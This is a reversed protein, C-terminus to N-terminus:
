LRKRYEDVIERERSHIDMSLVEAVSNAQALTLASLERSELLKRQIWRHIEYHERAQPLPAPKPRDDMQISPFFKGAM